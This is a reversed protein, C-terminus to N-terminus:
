PKRAISKHYIRKEIKLKIDSHDILKAKKLKPHARERLEIKVYTTEQNAFDPYNERAQNRSSITNEKTEENQHNIIIM